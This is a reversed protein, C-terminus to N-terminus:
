EYNIVRLITKRGESLDTKIMKQQCTLRFEKSSRIYSSIAKEITVDEPDTGLYKFGNEERVFHHDEERSNQAMAITPLGLLAFEYATRGCSTIGIDANSILEPMNKVNFVFDINDSAFRKMLSDPDRLARGLVVTFHLSSYSESSVIKLVRETYGKPDAGGFSILVNEIHDKIKIKNYGLYGKGAFYYKSGTFTCPRESHSLLANFVYDAFGHGENIDEFNIVRADSLQNRLSQMYDFDTSLIDNIFISYNEKKCLNIVDSSNNVAILTHTTSGFFEKPTITKNYIIDPKVYLADALEIMRYIHGLGIQNNGNVYIGVRRQQMLFEAKIFDDVVAERDPVEYIGIRGSIQETIGTRYKFIFFAGTEEFYAPLDQRNLRKDYCPVFDGDEEKWALHPRNCVSIVTDFGSSITYKIAKDLTEVTLAPSTPQLTVVYDWETDKPIADIIVPDLTVNDACLEKSRIRTKAGMQDAISLIEDSDTTVIVDTIYSSTMANHIAYYVMPHNNIIRINKNPIAKSGARAPIVALIRM